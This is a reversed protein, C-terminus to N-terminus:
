LIRILHAGILEFMTIRGIEKEGRVGSDKRTARDLTESSPLYYVLEAAASIAVSVTQSRV